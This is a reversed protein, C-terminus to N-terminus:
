KRQSLQSYWSVIQGHHPAWAIWVSEAWAKAARTFEERSAKLPMDFVTRASAFSPPEMWHFAHKM